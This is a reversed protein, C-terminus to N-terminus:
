VGVLEAIRGLAQAAGAPISVANGEPLRPAVPIHSERVNIRVISGSGPKHRHFHLATSEAELRSTPVATGSGIDIVCVSAGEKVLRRIWTDKAAEQAETRTGIWESDGWMLVNPRAVSKCGRPCLPLSGKSATFTAEDVVPNVGCAEADHIKGMFAHYCGKPHSCQIHMLSGHTETIRDGPWGAKQWQGDVNTTFVWGRSHDKAGGDTERSMLRILTDFGAHPQTARYLHYRHGYFGWALQPDDRFWSPNALDTFRLGLKAFPPYAAWFGENGRFDPLGSDVGMGAGCTVYIADAAKILQAARQLEKSLAAAM